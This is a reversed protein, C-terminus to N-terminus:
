TSDIGIFICVFMSYMSYMCVYAWAIAIAGKPTDVRQCTAIKHRLDRRQIPQRPRQQREQQLPLSRRLPTAPIAMWAATWPLWPLLESPLAARSWRHHFCYPYFPNSISLMIFPSLLLYTNAAISSINWRHFWFIVTYRYGFLRDWRSVAILENSAFSLSRPSYPRQMAVSDASRRRGLWQLPNKVTWREDM